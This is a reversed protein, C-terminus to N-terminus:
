KRLHSEVMEQLRERRESLQSILGLKKSIALTLADLKELPNIKAEKTSLHFTQNSAEGDSVIELNYADPFDSLTPLEIGCNKLVAKNHADRMQKEMFELKKKRWAMGIIANLSRSEQAHRAAYDILLEMEDTERSNNPVLVEEQLTSSEWSPTANTSHNMSSVVHESLQKAEESRAYKNPSSPYGGEETMGFIAEQIPFRWRALEGYTLDDQTGLIFGSQTRAFSVHEPGLLPSAQGVLLKNITERLVAEAPALSPPDQEFRLRGRKLSSGEEANALTWNQQSISSPCHDSM